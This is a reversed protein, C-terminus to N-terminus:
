AARDVRQDAVVAGDWDFRVLELVRDGHRAELVFGWPRHHVRVEASPHRRRLRVIARTQPLTLEREM